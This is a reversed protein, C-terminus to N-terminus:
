AAALPDARGITAFAEARETCSGCAGCPMDGGVYCTWTAAYDVDLGFGVRLIGAKDSHLFPAEVRIPDYNAVALLANLADVFEPRCDPYIAHDGSHVGLVIADHRRAVAVGAAISALIANRNPVVTQKMTEDAYHGLPVDINDTLASGSLLRGVDSLDAVDHRTAYRGAQIRAADIERRHRQGYDVTLADVDDHLHAAWALATVSDMGGSLVVLATTM